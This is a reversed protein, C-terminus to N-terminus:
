SLIKKELVVADEIGPGERYYGRKIGTQQFGMKKYLHLAVANSPRVELLVVGIAIEGLSDIVNQLLFQGHGKGQLAPSICINLVHCVNGDYRCIIYGAIDTSLDGDMEIVRCDYKVSVCDSLIERSWPARHAVEEIAYVRDIDDNRMSRVRLTM